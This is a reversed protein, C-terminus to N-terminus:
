KQDTFALMQFAVGRPTPKSTATGAGINLNDSDPELNPQESVILNYSIFSIYIFFIM